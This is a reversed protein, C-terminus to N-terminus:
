FTIVMHGAGYITAFTLPGASRTLGATTGNFNWETLPQSNFAERGTWDLNLTM